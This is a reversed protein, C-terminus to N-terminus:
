NTTVNAKKKTKNREKNKQIYEVQKEEDYDLAKKLESLIDYQVEENHIHSKIVFCIDQWRKKSIFTM